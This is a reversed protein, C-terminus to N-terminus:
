CGGALGSPSNSHQTLLLHGDCNQNLILIIYGHQWCYHLLALHPSNSYLHRHMIHDTQRSDIYQDRGHDRCFHSLWDLHWESAHARPVMNIYIPNSCAILAMQHSHICNFLRYM